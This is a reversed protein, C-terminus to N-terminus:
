YGLGPATTCDAPVPGYVKNLQAALAPLTCAAAGVPTAAEPAELAGATAVETAEDGAAADDAGATNADPPAVGMAECGATEEATAGTGEDIPM